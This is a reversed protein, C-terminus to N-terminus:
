DLPRWLKESPHQYHTHTWPRVLAYAVAALIAIVLLVTGITILFM